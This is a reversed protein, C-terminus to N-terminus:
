RRAAEVEPAGLQLKAARVREADSVRAYRPALRAVDDAGREALQRAALAAVAAGRPPLEAVPVIRTTPGLIARLSESHREAGDGAFWVAERSAEAPSGGAHSRAREVFEALSAPGFVGDDLLRELAAPELMSSAGPDVRFLAGYVEGRRADLCPCVLRPGAAGATAFGSPRWTAELSSAALAALTPVGVLVARTGL